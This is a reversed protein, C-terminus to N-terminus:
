EKLANMKRSSAHTILVAIADLTDDLIKQDAFTPGLSLRVMKEVGKKDAHGNGTVSQKVQLPTYEAILIGNRFLTSIMVGRAESVHMATKQNNQFFLSELAAESPCHAQILLDLERDIQQYRAILSDTKDTEIAGFLKLRLTSGSLMGIAWGVRDYGPDIGMLVVENRKATIM